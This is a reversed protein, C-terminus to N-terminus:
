LRIQVAFGNITFKQGGPSKNTNSNIINAQQNIAQNYKEEDSM